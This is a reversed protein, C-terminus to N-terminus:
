SIFGSILQQLLKTNDAISLTVIPIYLKIDTIAFTTIQDIASLKTVCNASWTLNVYIKCNILPMELTRRLISLYKLPTMIEVDITGNNATPRTIRKLNLHILLIKRLMSSLLIPM